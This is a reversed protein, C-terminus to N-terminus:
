IAGIKETNNINQNHYPLTGKLFESISRLSFPLKMLKPPLCTSMPLILNGTHMTNGELYVNRAELLSTMQTIISNCYCCDNDKHNGEVSM